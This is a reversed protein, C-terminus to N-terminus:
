AGNRIITMASPCIKHVYLLEYIKVTATDFSVSSLVEASGRVPQTPTASAFDASEIFAPLTPTALFLRTLSFGCKEGSKQDDQLWTDSDSCKPDLDFRCGGKLVKM